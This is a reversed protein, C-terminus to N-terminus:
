AVEEEHTATLEESGDVGFEPATRRRQDAVEDQSLHTVARGGLSQCRAHRRTLDPECQARLHINRELATMARPAQLRAFASDSNSYETERCASSGMEEFIHEILRLRRCL